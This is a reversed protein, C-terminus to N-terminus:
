NDLKACWSASPVTFWGYKCYSVIRDDVCLIVVRVGLYLHIKHGEHNLHACKVLLVWFVLGGYLATAVVFVIGAIAIPKFKDNFTETGPGSGMIWLIAPSILFLFVVSCLLIFFVMNLWYIIYARKNLRKGILDSISNIKGDKDTIAFDKKLNALYEKEQEKTVIVDKSM